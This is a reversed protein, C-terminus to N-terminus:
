LGVEAPAATDAGPFLKPCRPGSEPNLNLSKFNKTHGADAANGQGHRLKESKDLYASEAPFGLWPGGRVSRHYTVLCLLSLGFCIAQSGASLPSLHYSVLYNVDFFKLFHVPAASSHLSLASFIFLPRFHTCPTTLVRLRSKPKPGSRLTMLELWM